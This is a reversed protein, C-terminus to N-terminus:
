QVSLMGQFSKGGFNNGVAGNLTITCAPVNDPRILTKTIALSGNGGDPRTHQSRQRWKSQPLNLKTIAELGDDLLLKGFANSPDQWFDKIIHEDWLIPVGFENITFTSDGVMIFGNVGFAFNGNYSGVVGARVQGTGTQTVNYSTGLTSTAPNTTNSANLNISFNLSGNGSGAGTTSIQVPYSGTYAACGGLASQDATILAAMISLYSEAIVTMAEEGPTTNPPTFTQAQVTGVGAAFALGMIASAIKKMKM